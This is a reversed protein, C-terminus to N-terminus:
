LLSSIGSFSTSESGPSCKDICPGFCGFDLKGNVTCKKVCDRYCQVNAIIPEVLILVMVLMFMTIISVTKIAM